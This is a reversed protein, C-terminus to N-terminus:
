KLNEEEKDCPKPNKLLFDVGRASSSLLIPKCSDNEFRPHFLFSVMEFRTRFLFPIDSQIELPSPYFYWYIWILKSGRASSSLLILSWSRVEPPPPYFYWLDAEFRPRFLIFTDNKLFFELGWASLSASFWNTSFDLVMHSLPFSCSWIEPPLSNSTCFGDFFKLGQMSCPCFILYWRQPFNLILYSMELHVM